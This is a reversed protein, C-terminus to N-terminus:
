LNFVRKSCLMLDQVECIALIENNYDLRCLGSTINYDKAVLKKGQKIKLEDDCTVSIGPIDGLAYAIQKLYSQSAVNHVMKKLNDLMIADKLLINGSQTRCIDTVTAFTDLKKAIDIALSRVYTGTSCGVEIKLSNQNYSILDLSFIEVDRAPIEFIKGERAMKYSRKGDIKIASYIPPIQKICGLFNPLIEQIEELSPIRGDSKVVAGELDYTDTEYGFEMEFIYKKYKQDVYPIAKTAEGFALVLVGHALPDLTGIYGAKKCKLIKKIESLAKNSSINKPKDLIIWGNTTTLTKM